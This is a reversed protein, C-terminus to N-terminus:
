ARRGGSPPMSSPPKHYCGSPTSNPSANMGTPIYYMTELYSQDLSSHCKPENKPMQSAPSGYRLSTQHLTTPVPPPELHRAQQASSPMATYSPMAYPLYQPAYLGPNQLSSYPPAAPPYLGSHSMAQQPILVEVYQGLEPDFLMKRLPQMPVEIYFYKGTEPDLLVRRPGQGCSPGNANEPYLVSAGGPVESGYDHGFSPPLDQPNFLQTRPDLTSMNAPPYEHYPVPDAAQPSHHSVPVRDRHQGSAPSQDGSYPQTKAVPCTRPHHLPQILAPANPISSNPSVRSYNQAQGDPRSQHPRVQAQPPAGPCTLVQGPSQSVPPIWEESSHNPNGRRSHSSLTCSCSSQKTTPHMYPKQQPLDSLQLTSFSEREDYSPPDDSAYFRYDDKHFRDNPSARSVPQTHSHAHPGTPRVSPNSVFSSALISQDQNISTTLQQCTSNTSYQHQDVSAFTMTNSKQVSSPTTTVPIPPPKDGSVASLGLKQTNSSSAENLQDKYILTAPIENKEAFSKKYSPKPPVFPKLRDSSISRVQIPLEIEKSATAPLANNKSNSSFSIAEPKFLTTLNTPMQIMTTTATLKKNKEEKRQQMSSEEALTGKPSESQEKSQFQPGDQSHSTRLSSNDVLTLNCSLAANKTNVQAEDSIVELLCAQLPVELRNVHKATASAGEAVVDCVGIDAQMGKEKLLMSVSHSSSKAKIQTPNTSKYDSTSQITKSPGDQLVVLASVEREKSPPRPPMGQKTSPDSHNSSRSVEILEDLNAFQSDTVKPETTLIKLLPAKSTKGTSDTDRSKGTGVHPQSTKSIDVAQKEGQWHIAKSGSTQKDKWSIAKCKINLAPPTQPPKEREEQIPTDEATSTTNSAKFSLNYSNKVLKRVDRVRHIVSKAKNNDNDEETETVEMSKTNIDEASQCECMERSREVDPSLSVKLSSKKKEKITSLTIEPTKSMFICKGGQQRQNEPTMQCETDRSITRSQMSEAQTAVAVSTNRARANASDSNFREGLNGSRGKKGDNTCVKEEVPLSLKPRIEDRSLNDPLEADGTNFFAPRLVPKPPVKPACKKVQWHPNKEERVAFDETSLNCESHQSSSLSHKEMNSPLGDFSSPSINHHKNKDRSPSPDESKLIEKQADQMKKSLVSKIICSAMQTKSSADDLSVSKQLTRKRDNKPSNPDERSMVEQVSAPTSHQRVLIDKSCRHTSPSALINGNNGKTISEDTNRRLLQIQRKPVTRKRRSSEEKSDLAVDVCEFSGMEFGKNPDLGERTLFSSSHLLDDNEHFTSGRLDAYNMWAVAGPSDMTSPQSVNTSSRHSSNYVDLYDVQPSSLSRFALDTLWKVENDAEDFESGMSSTEGTYEPPLCDASSYKSKVTSQVRRAVGKNEQQSGQTRFQSQQQLTAPHSEFYSNAPIGSKPDRSSPAPSHGAPGKRNRSSFSLEVQEGRYSSERISEEGEGLICQDGERKESEKERCSQRDYEGGRQWCIAGPRERLAIPEQSLRKGSSASDNELMETGSNSNYVELCEKELVSAVPMSVSSECLSLSTPIGCMNLDSTDNDVIEQNTEKQVISSGPNIPKSPSDQLIQRQSHVLDSASNFNESHPPDDFNSNIPNPSPPSMRDCIIPLIQNDTQELHISPELTLQLDPSLTTDRTHNLASSSPRSISEPTLLFMRSTPSVLSENRFHSNSNEICNGYVTTDVKPSQALIDNPSVVSYKIGGIVPYKTTQSLVSYTITKIEPSCTVSRLEPSPASSKQEPTLYNLRNDPTPTIKRLEPTSDRSFTPTAAYNIGTMVPSSSSDDPEASYVKLVNTPSTNVTYGLPSHIIVPLPSHAPISHDRSSCIERYDIGQIVPSSPSAEPETSNANRKNIPSPSISYGRPSHIVVPQPLHAPVSYDSSSCIDSNDIGTIVLSPPSAEPETSYVERENTPSPSISYGMSSHIIVPEPSYALFSRDLSSCIDSNDIRTVIPSSPLKEPEASNVNRGYTPSPSISYGMPSHIIVPEPSYAIFSHDPSSCIDSNDIRTVIPSSPLKEPEASNVNRGYTPSPSISYGMPSHIIVPEPSYALLSHDPSSCIDSNDFSTVIPSSPLKEPEASNVNRRNTSLPSITYCMPSYIKVPEPSHNPASHDPSSCIESYDIGTFVPSSSSAEPEPETSYVKRENIPLPSITYGMPSDIIVHEPSHALASNDPSFIENIEKDDASVSIQNSPFVLEKTETSITSVTPSDIERNDNTPPTSVASSAGYTDELYPFESTNGVQTSILHLQEPSSKSTSMPTVSIDMSVPSTYTVKLEPRDSPVPIFNIDRNEPLTSMEQIPSCIRDRQSTNSWESPTVSKIMEQALHSTKKLSSHYNMSEKNESSVVNNQEPPSEALRLQPSSACDTSEYLPICVQRDLCTNTSTHQCTATMGGLEASDELFSSTTSTKSSPDSPEKAPIILSTVPKSNIDQSQSANTNETENVATSSVSVQPEAWNDTHSLDDCNIKAAPPTCDFPYLENKSDSSITSVIPQSISEWTESTSFDKLNPSPTDSLDSGNATHYSGSSDNADDTPFPQNVERRLFIASAPSSSLSPSEGDDGFIDCLCTTEAIPSRPSPIATIDFIEVHNPGDRNQLNFTHPASRLLSYRDGELVWREM